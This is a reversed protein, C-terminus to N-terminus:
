RRTNWFGNHNHRGNYEWLTVKGSEVTKQVDIIRQNRSGRYNLTIDRQEIIFPGDVLVDCLLLLKKMSSDNMIEEFTFGSYLWVSTYPTEERLRKVFAYIDAASYMPDGGSLTVGDIYPTERIYDIIQAQIEENFPRGVDFRHSEPNHCGKCHHHCGAFFVVVRVGDGDVISEFNIGVVNAM